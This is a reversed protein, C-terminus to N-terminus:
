NLFGIVPTCSGMLSVFNIHNNSQPCCDSVVILLSLCALSRVNRGDISPHFEKMYTFTVMDRELVGRETRLDSACRRRVVDHYVM